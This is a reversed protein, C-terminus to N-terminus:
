PLCLILHQKRKPLLDSNEGKGWGAIRVNGPIQNELSSSAARDFPMVTSPSKFDTSEAPLDSTSLAAANISLSQTIVIKFCVRCNVSGGNIVRGSEAFAGGVGAVIIFGILLPVSRGAVIKLVYKEAKVRDKRKLTNEINM